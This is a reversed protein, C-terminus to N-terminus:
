RHVHLTGRPGLPIARSPELRHIPGVSQNPSHLKTHHLHLYSKMRVSAPCLGLGQVTLYLKTILCPPNVSIRVAFIVSKKPEIVRNAMLFTKWSKSAKASLLNFAVAASPTMIVYGFDKGIIFEHLNHMSENSYVRDSFKLSKMGIEQFKNAM